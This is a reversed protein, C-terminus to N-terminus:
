VEPGRSLPLYDGFEGNFKAAGAKGPLRRSRLISRERVCFISEWAYAESTKPAPM